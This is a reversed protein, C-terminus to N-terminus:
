SSASAQFKLAQSCNHSLYSLINNLGALTSEFSAFSHRDQPSKHFLDCHPVSSSYSLSDRWDKTLLTYDKAKLHECCTFAVWSSCLTIVTVSKLGRNPFVSTSLRTLMLLPRNLVRSHTAVTSPSCAKVSKEILLLHIGLHVCQQGSVLCFVPSISSGATVNKQQLFLPLASFCTGCLWFGVGDVWRNDQKVSCDRDSSNWLFDRCQPAFGGASGRQLCLM